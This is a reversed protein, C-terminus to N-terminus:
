FDLKETESKPQWARATSRLPRGPWSGTSRPPRGSTCLTTCTATDTPRDVSRDVSQSCGVRPNSGTSRATSRVSLTARQKQPRDVPRDVPLQWRDFISQQGTSRGTSRYAMEPMKLQWRSYKELPSYIGWQFSTKM